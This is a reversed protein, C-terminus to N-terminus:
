WKKSNMVAYTRSFFTLQAVYTTRNVVKSKYTSSNKSINRFYSVSFPKFYSFHGEIETLTMSLPTM